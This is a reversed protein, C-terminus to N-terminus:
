ILRQNEGPRWYFQVTYFFVLHLWNGQLYSLSRYVVEKCKRFCVRHFAMNIQLYYNQFWSIQLFVLIGFHNYNCTNSNTLINQLSTKRRKKIWYWGLPTKKLLLKYSAVQHNINHSNQQQKTFIIPSILLKEFCGSCKNKSQNLIKADRGRLTWGVM